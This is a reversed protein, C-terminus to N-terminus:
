AEALVIPGESQVCSALSARIRARAGASFAFRGTFVPCLGTGSRPNSGRNGGHSPPTRTGQVIAARYKGIGLSAFREARTAKLSRNGAGM